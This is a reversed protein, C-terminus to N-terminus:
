YVASQSVPPTSLAIKCSGVTNSRGKSKMGSRYRTLPPVAISGDVMFTLSGFMMVERPDHHAIARRIRAAVEDRAADAPM